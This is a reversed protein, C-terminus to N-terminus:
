ATVGYLEPEYEPYYGGPPTPDDPNSPADPVELEVPHEEKAHEDSGDGDLPPPQSPDYGNGPAQYYHEYTDNISDSEADAPDTEELVIDDGDAELDLDLLDASAPVILESYSSWHQIGDWTVTGGANWQMNVEPYAHYHWTAIEGTLPVNGGTPCAEAAAQDARWARHGPFQASLTTSSMGTGSITVNFNSPAVVPATELTQQVVISIIRTRITDDAAVTFSYQGNPNATLTGAGVWGDRQGTNTNASASVLMRAWGGTTLAAQNGLNFSVTRSYNSPPVYVAFHSYREAQRGWGDNQIPLAAQATASLGHGPWNGSHNPPPLLYAQCAQTPQSGHIFHHHTETTWTNNAFRYLTGYHYEGTSNLRQYGGSIRAFRPTPSDAIALPASSADAWGVFTENSRVQNLNIQLQGTPVIRRVVEQMMYLQTHSTFSNPVTVTIVARVTRNVQGTAGIRNADLAVETGDPEVEFLSVRTNANLWNQSLLLTETQPADSTWTGISSSYTVEPTIEAVLNTGALNLEFDVVGTLVNGPHVTEHTLSALRNTESRAGRYWRTPHTGTSGPALSISLEGTRNTEPAVSYSDQWIAFTSGTSSALVAGVALATLAKIRKNM